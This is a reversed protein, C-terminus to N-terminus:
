RWLGRTRLEVREHEATAPGRRRTASQVVEGVVLVGARGGAARGVGIGLRGTWTWEDPTSAGCVLAARTRRGGHAM